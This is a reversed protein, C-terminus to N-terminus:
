INGIIVRDNTGDSITIRDNTGDIKVNADGGITLSGSIDGSTATIAGTITASSATLNGSSDITFNAAKILVKDGNWQLYNNSDKYLSLKASGGDTGLWAGVNNGYGTPPTAGFSVYGNSHLVANTKFIKNQDVSWGAITSAGAINIQLAQIVGSRELKWGSAGQIYNESQLFGRIIGNGLSSPTTINNVLNPVFTSQGEKIHGETISYEITGRM